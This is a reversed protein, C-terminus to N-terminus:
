WLWFELFSDKDPTILDLDLLTMKALKDLGDIM